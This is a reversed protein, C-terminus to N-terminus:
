GMLLYYTCPGPQAKAGSLFHKISNKSKTRLSFFMVGYSTEHHLCTLYVICKEGLCASRQLYPKDISHFSLYLDLLDIYQCFSTFLPAFDLQNCYIRIRFETRTGLETKSVLISFPGSWTRVCRQASCWYSAPSFWPGRMALSPSKGWSSSLTISNQATKQWVSLIVGYQRGTFLERKEVKKCNEALKRLDSLNLILWHTTKSM